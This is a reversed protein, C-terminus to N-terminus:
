VDDEMWALLLPIRLKFADDIERVGRPQVSDKVSAYGIPGKNQLHVRDWLIEIFEEMQGRLWKDLDREDQQIEDEHAPHFIDEMQSLDPLLDDSLVGWDPLDPLFISEAPSRSSSGDAAFIAPAAELEMAEWEPEGAESGRWGSAAAQEM